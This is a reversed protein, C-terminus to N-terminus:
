GAAFIEEGISLAKIVVPDKEKLSDFEAPTYVHWKMGVRPLVHSTFFDPRTRFPLETEQVVLFELGSAPGVRGQAFDGMLFVRQLGLIPLEARIRELEAELLQRRHEGFGFIMPM